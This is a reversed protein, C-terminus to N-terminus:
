KRIGAAKQWIKRQRPIILNLDFNDPLPWHPGSADQKQLKMCARLANRVINRCSELALMGLRREESADYRDYKSGSLTQVWKHIDSDKPVDGHVRRSRIDYMTRVCDYVRDKLKTSGARDGRSLLWAVRLSIRHRLEQNDSPGFLSELAITLDVIIDLWNRIEYSRSFGGFAIDMPNLKSSPWTDKYKTSMLDRWINRVSFFDSKDLLTENEYLGLTRGERCYALPTSLPFNSVQFRAYCHLHPSGSKTLRIADIIANHREIDKTLHPYPMDSGAYKSKPIRMTTIIVAKDLGVTTWDDPILRGELPYMQLGWVDPGLSHAPKSELYTYEDLNLRKGSLNLGTVTDVMRWIANPSYLEKVFRKFWKQFVRKSPEMGETEPIIKLLLLQWFEHLVWSESRGSQGFYISQIEEDSALHQILDNEEQIDKLDDYYFDFGVRLRRAAAPRPWTKIDCLRQIGAKISSYCLQETRTLKSNEVEMSFLVKDKLKLM